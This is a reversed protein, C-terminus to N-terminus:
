VGGGAVFAGALEVFVRQVFRRGCELLGSDMCFFALSSFALLPVANTKQAYQPHAGSGALFLTAGYGLFYIGNGQRM